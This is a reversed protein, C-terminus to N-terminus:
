QRGLQQSLVVEEQEWLQQPFTFEVQGALIRTSNLYDCNQIELFLYLRVKSQIDM